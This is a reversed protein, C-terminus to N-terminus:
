HIPELPMGPATLTIISEKNRQCAYELRVKIGVDIKTEHHITSYNGM